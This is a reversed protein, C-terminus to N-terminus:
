CPCCTWRKLAKGLTIESLGNFCADFVDFTNIRPKDADRQVHKLSIIVNSALYEEFKIHKIGEEENSVM